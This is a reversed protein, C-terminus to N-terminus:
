PRGGIGKMLGGGTRSRYPQRGAIWALLGLSIGIAVYQSAAEGPTKPVILLRPIGRGSAAAFQALWLVSTSTMAGIWGFRLAWFLAWSVTLFLPATRAVLLLLVSRGTVPYGSVVDVISLGVTGLLPVLSTVLTRVLLRVSRPWVSMEELDAWSSGNSSALSFMVAMLGLLPALLTSADLSATMVYSWINLGFPWSADPRSFGTVYRNVLLGAILVLSEVLVFTLPMFRAEAWVVRLLSGTEISPRISDRYGTEVVTEQLGEGATQQPIDISTMEMVHASSARVVEHTRRDAKTQAEELACILSSVLNTPVPCATEVESLLDVVAEVRNESPVKEGDLRAGQCIEEYISRHSRLGLGDDGAM